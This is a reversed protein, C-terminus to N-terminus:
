FTYAVTRIVGGGSRAESLVRTTRPRVHFPAETLVVGSGVPLRTDGDTFKDRNVVFPGSPVHECVIWTPYRALKRVIAAIDDNCLHQLVQKLIVVDGAPLADVVADLVMFALNERAFRRRDHEILAPVVDCAVYSRALDALRSAAVGDGCGIDVVVPPASMRALMGRVGAVYPEIAEPTHSGLGSFFEGDRGGWHNHRYIRGFLEARSTARPARFGRLARRLPAPVFSGLARQLRSVM